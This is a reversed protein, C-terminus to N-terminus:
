PLIGQIRRIANDAAHRVREMPDERFPQLDPIASADRLYGVLNIAYARPLGPTEKAVRLIAGLHEPRAVTRLQVAVGWGADDGWRVAELLTPVTEPLELAALALAAIGRVAPDGMLEALRPAAEPTKALAAFRCASDRTNAVPDHLRALGKARLSPGPSFGSELLDVLVRAALRRRLPDSSDLDRGVITPMEEYRAFSPFPLSDIRGAKWCRLAAEYLPLAPREDRIWSLLQNVRNLYRFDTRTRLAEILVPVAAVGARKLEVFPLYSTAHSDEPGGLQAAWERMQDLTPAQLVLGFLLAPLM